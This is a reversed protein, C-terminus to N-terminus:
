KFLLIENSSNSYAPKYQRWDDYNKKDIMYADFAANYQNVRKQFDVDSESRKRVPNAPPTPEDPKLDLNLIQYYGQGMNVFQEGDARTWKSLNTGAEGFTTCISAGNLASGESKLCIRKSAPIILPITYQTKIGFGVTDALTFAKTGQGLVMRNDQFAIRGPMGDLWSYGLHNTGAFTPITM